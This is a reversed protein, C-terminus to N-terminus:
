LCESAKQLYDAATYPAGRDSHLIVNKPYGQKRCADQLARITLDVTMRKGYSFGVIKRPCVDLISALYTWGDKQTHIYTIDSLWVQNPKNATVNRSIINKRSVDDCSSRYHRYEQVVISKIDTERM